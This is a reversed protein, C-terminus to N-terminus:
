EKYYGEGERTFIGPFILIIVLIIIVIWDLQIARMWPGFRREDGGNFFSREMYLIVIRGHRDRVFDGDVVASSVLYSFYYPAITM